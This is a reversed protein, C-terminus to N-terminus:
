FKGNRVEVIQMIEAIFNGIGPINFLIVRRLLELMLAFIITAGIAIGLGRSIGAVFNLFILRAPRELLQVYEAIRLSELHKVLRVLNEEIYDKVEKDM